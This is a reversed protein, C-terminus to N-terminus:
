NARRIWTKIRQSLLCQFRSGVRSRRVPFAVALTLRADLVRRLNGSGTISVREPCNDKAYRQNVMVLESRYSEYTSKRFVSFTM